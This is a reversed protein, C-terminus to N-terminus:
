LKIHLAVHKRSNCCRKFIEVFKEFLRIYVPHYIHEIINM